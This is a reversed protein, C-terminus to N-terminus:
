NVYWPLKGVLFPPSYTFFCSRQIHKPFLAISLNKFTNLASFGEIRWRFSGVQADKPGCNASWSNAITAPQMHVYWWVVRKWSVDQMTGYGVLKRVKNSGYSEWHGLTFQAQNCAAVETLSLGGNWTCASSFRKCVADMVALERVSLYNLVLVIAESPLRLFLSQDENRQSARKAERSELATQRRTRM